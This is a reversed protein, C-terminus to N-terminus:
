SKIRRDQVVRCYEKDQQLTKIKIDKLTMTEAVWHGGADCNDEAWTMIQIALNENSILM